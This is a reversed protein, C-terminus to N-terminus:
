QITVRAVDTIMSYRTVKGGKETVTLIGKDVSFRVVESMPKEILNGDKLEVVLRISALPDPPAEVPPKAAEKERPPTKAKATSSRKTAPPKTRDTRTRKKGFVTPIDSTVVVKKRTSGRKSPEPKAETAAEAPTAEPAPEVKEPERDPQVEAVVEKPEPEIKPPEPKPVVAIITGVSNVKIGPENDSEKRAITPADEPKQGTIAIFSGGFKIRFEAPDDNPSRGEVRLILREGKRLYVLRGTESAEADPYIVMKTLPRLANAAFVDIDGAFNRTVVNIFIDGQGGDFTYFYSTSRPDGIDRARITGIIENTDVPTPYNPDTSQANIAFPLCLILTLWIRGVLFTTLYSSM